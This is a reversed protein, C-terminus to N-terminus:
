RMKMEREADARDAEIMIKILEKFKVKPEYGFAKKAKSYDAILTSTKGPRLLKPDVEVYKSPDLGVVKFAEELPSPDVRSNSYASAAVKTPSVLYNIASQILINRANQDIGTIEDDNDNSSAM